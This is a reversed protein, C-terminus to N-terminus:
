RKFFNVIKTYITQDGNKAGRDRLYKVVELHGEKSAWHPATRNGGEPAELNAGRDCLYKVVELHGKESAWHLATRNFGDQAELNAGRECLYKVVELHGNNSAWHLATREWDDQAALRAGSDYLYNIVELHGEKSACHLPVSGNENSLNVRKIIHTQEEDTREGKQCLLEVAELCGNQSAYHLASMGKSDIADLITAEADVIEMFKRLWKAEGKRCAIMMVNQSQRNRADPHVRRNEGFHDNLTQFGKSDDNIAPEICDPM